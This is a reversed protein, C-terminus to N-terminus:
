LRRQRRHAPATPCPSDPPSPPSTRASGLPLHRCNPSTTPKMKAFSTVHGALRDLQACHSRLDALLQQQRPDLDETRRLLWRFEGGDEFVKPRM